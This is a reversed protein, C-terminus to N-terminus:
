TDVSWIAKYASTGHSRHRTCRSREGRAPDDQSAFKVVVEETAVTWVPWERVGSSHGIGSCFVAEDWESDTFLVAVNCPLTTARRTWACKEFLKSGLQVSDGITIFLGVPCCRTNRACVM